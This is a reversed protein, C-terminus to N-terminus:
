GHTYVGMGFLMEEAISAIDADHAEKSRHADDEHGDDKVSSSLLNSIFSNIVASDSLGDIYVVAAAIAEPRERRIERIVVDDSDGLDQLIRNMNTLVLSDIPMSEYQEWLRDEQQHTRNRAAKKQQM